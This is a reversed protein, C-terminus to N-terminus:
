IRLEVIVHTVGDVASRSVLFDIPDHLKTLNKRIIDLM